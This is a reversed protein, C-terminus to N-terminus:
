SGCRRQKIVTITLVPIGPTQYEYIFTRLLSNRRPHHYSFKPIPIESKSNSIVGITSDLFCFKLRLLSLSKSYIIRLSSFLKFCLRRSLITTSLWFTQMFLSTFQFNFYAFKKSFWFRCSIKYGFVFYTYLKLNLILMKLKPATHFVTSLIKIKGSFIYIM